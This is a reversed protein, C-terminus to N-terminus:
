DDPTVGIGARVYASVAGAKFAVEFTEHLAAHVLERQAAPVRRLRGDHTFEEDASERAVQDLADPDVGLYEVFSRHSIGRGMMQAFGAFTQFLDGATLKPKGPLIM